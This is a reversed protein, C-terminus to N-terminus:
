EPLRPRSAAEMAAADRNAFERKIMEKVMAEHDLKARAQELKSAEEVARQAAALEEPDPPPPPPEPLYQYASKLAESVINRRADASLRCEPDMDQPLVIRLRHGGEHRRVDIYPIMGEEILLDPALEAALAKAQQHDM